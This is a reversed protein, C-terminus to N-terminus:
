VVIPVRFHQWDNIIAQAHRGAAASLECITAEAERLMRPVTIKHIGAVQCTVAHKCPTLLLVIVLCSVNNSTLHETSTCIPWWNLLDAAAFYANIVM